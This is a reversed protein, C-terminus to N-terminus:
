FYYLLSILATPQTIAGHWCRHMSGGTAAREIFPM